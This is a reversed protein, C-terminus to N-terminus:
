TMLTQITVVCVIKKEMKEKKEKKKEKQLITSIVIRSGLDINNRRTQSEVSHILLSPHFHTM